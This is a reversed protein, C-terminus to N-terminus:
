ITTYLSHCKYSKGKANRWVSRCNMQNINDGYVNYSFELGLDRCEDLTLVGFEKRYWLSLSRGVDTNGNNPSSTLNEAM